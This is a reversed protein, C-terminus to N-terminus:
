WEAKSCQCDIRNCFLVLEPRRVDIIRVENSDITIADLGFIQCAVLLANGHNNNVRIFWFNVYFFSTQRFFYPYGITQRNRVRFNTLILARYCHPVFSSTLLAAMTVIRACSIPQVWFHLWKSKELAGNEQGNRHGVTM